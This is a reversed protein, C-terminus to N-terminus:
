LSTLRAPHTNYHHCKKREKAVNVFKNSIINRYLNAYYSTSVHIHLTNCQETCAMGAYTEPKWQIGMRVGMFKPKEDRERSDREQYFFITVSIPLANEWGNRDIKM